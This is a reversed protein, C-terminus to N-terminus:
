AGWEGAYRTSFPGAADGAQEFLRKAIQRLHLMDHAAWASLLDGARIPGFKPHDYARSWDMGGPLGRLWAVSARRAEAFRRVTDALDHDNYRRERAWGEPDIPPWAGPREEIIHRLRLGFDQTEEDLLHRCVELVSWAGSPPKWRAAAPSLGAVVAPLAAGFHDLADVHASADFASM